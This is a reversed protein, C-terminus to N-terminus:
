KQAWTSGVSGLNDDDICIRGESMEFLNLKAEDTPM